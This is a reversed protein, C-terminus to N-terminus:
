RCKNRERLAAAAQRVNAHQNSFDAHLKQLTDCAAKRENIATLAWALGVLADQAHAGKRSRNYADDYAIAAEPYRREGALAQALLYQADYARPSTSFKRLVERAAAEAAPYDRRRLAADGERMALQATRPPKKQAQAPPPPPAHTAGLPAPPPSTTATAVTSSPQTASSSPQTAPASPQAASPPLAGGHQLQFELDDIRKGLDAGQKQIQNEAKEVRGRLDRVQQSLAQVQSLLQVLLDGGGSSQGSSSSSGLYSQGAGGNHALQEQLQQVQQQLKYVENHLAIAERSQMQACAPGAALLVLPAAVLVARVVVLRSFIPLRM